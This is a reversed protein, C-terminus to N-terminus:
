QNMRSPAPYNELDCKLPSFTLSIFGREFSSILLNGDPMVSLGNHHYLWKNEMDYGHGTYNRWLSYVLEHSQSDIIAIAGFHSKSAIIHGQKTGTIKWNEPKINRRYVHTRRINRELQTLKDNEIIKEDGTKLEWVRIYTNPGASQNDNVAALKNCPLTCWSAFNNNTKFQSLHIGQDSWLHIDDNGNNNRHITIITNDSTLIYQIKGKEGISIITEKNDDCTDFIHLSNDILSVSVVKKSQTVCLGFAKTLEKQFTVEERKVDWITIFCNDDRNGSIEVNAILRNSVKIPCRIFPSCTSDNRLKKIISGEKNCIYIDKMYSFAILDESLHTYSSPHISINKEEHNFRYIGSTGTDHSYDRPTLIFNEPSIDAISHFFRCSGSFNRKERPQMFDYINKWTEAPLSTQNEIATKDDPAMNIPSCDNKEAIPTSLRDPFIDDLLRNYLGAHELIAQDHERRIIDRDNIHGIVYNLHEQILSIHEFLRLLNNELTQAYESLDNNEHSLLKIQTILHNIKNKYEKHPNLNKNCTQETDGLLDKLGHYFAHLEIVAYIYKDYVESFSYIDAEKGPLLANRLPNLFKTLKELLPEANGRAKEEEALRATEEQIREEEALRIKEKEERNREEERAKEEQHQRARMQSIITLQQIYDSNPQNNIPPKNNRQM